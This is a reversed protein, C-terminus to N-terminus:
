DRVLHRPPEYGFHAIERRFLDAILRSSDKSMSTTDDRPRINAKARPLPSTADVGISRLAFRLDDELHEYRGVFDVAIGAAISYITWDSALNAPRSKVWEDFTPRM